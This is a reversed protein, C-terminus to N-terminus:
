LLLTYSKREYIHNISSKCFVFNLVWHQKVCIEYKSCNKCSNEQEQKLEFYVRSERCLTFM